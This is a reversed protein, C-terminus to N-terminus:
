VLPQTTSASTKTALVVVRAIGCYLNPEVVVRSGIKLDPESGSRRAINAGLAVVEGSFEHGPVLPYRALPSDGDILHLDTGCIGCADVRIILEDPTTNSRACQRNSRQWPISSLLECLTYMREKNPSVISKIATPDQGAAQLGTRDGRAITVPSLHDYMLAATAVLAIADSYTNAYRFTGTLTIERNQIFSLPVSLEEAPGMGIAVWAVLLRLSRIGDVLARQNGSCELLVDAQVGAQAWHDNLSM